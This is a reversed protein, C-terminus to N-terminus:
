MQDDSFGSFHNSIAKIEIIGRHVLSNLGHRAMAGLGGGVGVLLWTM